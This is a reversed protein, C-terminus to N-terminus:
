YFYLDVRMYWELKISWYYTMFIDRRSAILFNQASKGGGRTGEPVLVTRMFWLSFNALLIRSSEGFLYRRWRQRCSWSRRNYGPTAGKFVFYANTDCLSEDRHIRRFYGYFRFGSFFICSVQYRTVHSRSVTALSVHWRIILWHWKSNSVLQM